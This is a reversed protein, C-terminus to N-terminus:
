TLYHRTKFHISQKVYHGLALRYLVTCDQVPVIADGRMAHLGM